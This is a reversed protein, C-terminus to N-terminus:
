GPRPMGLYDMVNKIDEWVERKKAPNQLLYSPHYTPMLNIGMYSSFKGRLRSIPVKSNLLNQSAVKGLAIIVRPQIIKIQTELFGMC